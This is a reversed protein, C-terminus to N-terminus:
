RAALPRSSKRGLTPCAEKMRPDRGKRDSKGCSQYHVRIKLRHVADGAQRVLVALEDDNQFARKDIRKRLRALYRTLPALHEFLNDFQRESLDRSDM